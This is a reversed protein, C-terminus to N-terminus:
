APCTRAPAASPQPAGTLGIPGPGFWIEFLQARVGQQSTYGAVRKCTITPILKQLQAFVADAESKDSGFFYRFETPGTYRGVVEIGPFKVGQISSSLRDILEQANARQSKDAIQVFVRPEGPLVLQKLEPLSQVQTSFATAVKAIDDASKPDSLKKRTAILVLQDMVGTPIEGNLGLIKIYDVASDNNKEDLDTALRVVELVAQQQTETLHQGFELWHLITDAGGGFFGGVLGALATWLTINRTAHSAGDTAVPRKEESM